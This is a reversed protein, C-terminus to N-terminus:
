FGEKLNPKRSINERYTKPSSKVIEKFHKNFNSITNYGCKFAVDSIPLDSDLLYACAKSIRVENLYEVFHKNTKKKFMRCFSQPTLFTLEAATKLSIESKFNGQVYKYLASLRDTKAHDVEHRYSENTILRIDKSKSLTNFIEFLGIIKDLGKKTLLKELKGAVIDKTKGSIHIGREALKFFGSILGAEEMNYFIPALVDANFYIVIAKARFGSLEQYYTEDNLWVHPLNRGVFVMDGATFSEIKDGIIRKGISEKIYVLELEPHFHFPAKFFPEDRELFSIHSNLEPSIETKLIKM